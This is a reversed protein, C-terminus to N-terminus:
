QVILKEFHTCNAGEVQLIYSGPLLTGAHFTKITGQYILNGSVDTLQIQTDKTVGSFRLEQGTTLPNPFLQVTKSTLSHVGLAGENIVGIADLDFGGTAFDTPYPDNILNGNKDESGYQPNISGVVDILRVHTIQTRDLAAITDIENLDFPTGFQGRYKGALNHLLTPDSNNDFPGIQTTSPFNSTAPFRYFDTGNSSVEVFALELFFHSFSNEFVAFDPGPGDSIPPNFTLTAVGSDGLSVVLFDDAIGTGDSDIGHSTVGLAKNGIDMWGRDVQCTNAWSVFVNSDRHIALSGPTLAAGDFQASTHLSLSILLLFFITKM